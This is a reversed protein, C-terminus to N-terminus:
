SLVAHSFIEREIQSQVGDVLQSPLSVSGIRKSGFIAAPSRRPDRSQDQYDDEYNTASSSSRLASHRSRTSVDEEVGDASSWTRTRKSSGGEDEDWGQVAVEEVDVVRRQKSRTGLTLDDLLEVTSPDLRERTSLASALRSSSAASSLHRLHIVPHTISRSM